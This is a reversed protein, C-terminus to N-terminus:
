GERARALRERFLESDDVLLLQERFRDESSTIEIKEVARDSDSLQSDRVQIKM